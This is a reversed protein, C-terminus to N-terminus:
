HLEKQHLRNPVVHPHSDILSWWWTSGAKGCGIAVFDPGGIRWHAPVPALDARVFARELCPVITPVTPAATSALTPTSM